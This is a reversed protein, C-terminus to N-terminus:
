TDLHLTLLMKQHPIGVEEFLPGVPEFGHRAYFDCVYAQASLEISTYGAQMAETILADLIDDGIGQRRYASLVAMRGIKAAKGSASPTILRGTAVPLGDDNYVVAHMVKADLEDWELEPSIGQENVFVETRVAGADKGLDTWLGVVTRTASM